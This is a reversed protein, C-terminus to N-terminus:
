YKMSQIFGNVKHQDINSCTAKVGAVRRVIMRQLFNMKEFLFEGGLFESIIAHTRLLEPFARVLQEHGAPLNMGCLFLGLRKKLLAPMNSHCFAKVRSQVNGAHVSGGIIVQEFESLDPQPTTKLNCLTSRGAGLGRAIDSAVKETTGHTTAFIIITKM